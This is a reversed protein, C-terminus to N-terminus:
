TKEKEQGNEAMKISTKLISVFHMLFQILYLAGESADSETSLDLALIKKGECYRRVVKYDSNLIEEAFALKEEDSWHEEPFEDPMDQEFVAKENEAKKHRRYM